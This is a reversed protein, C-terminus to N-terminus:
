TRIQAPPPQYCGDRGRDGALGFLNLFSQYLGRSRDPLEWDAFGQDLFSSCLRILVEHVPLDTDVGTAELLLDRHRKRVSRDHSAVDDDCDDAVLRVGDYCVRWLFNLVFTEWTRDSWSEISAENFQEFVKSVVDKAPRDEGSCLDRM